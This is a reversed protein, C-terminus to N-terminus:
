EDGHKGFFKKLIRILIYFVTVTILASLSAKVIEWLTFEMGYMTIM